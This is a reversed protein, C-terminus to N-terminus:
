ASPEVPDHGTDSSFPTAVLTENLRGLLSALQEVDAFSWDELRRRMHGRRAEGVLEREARGSATVRVVTERRDAESRTRTVYGRRELPMVQRTVTSADLDFARALASMTMDGADSLHALLLFGSRDLPSRAEELAALRIRETRRALLALEHQVHDFPDIAQVSM